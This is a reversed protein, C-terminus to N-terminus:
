RSQTCWPQEVTSPYICSPLFLLSFSRYLCIIRIPHIPFCFSILKKSGLLVTAEYSGPDTPLCVLSFASIFSVCSDLGFLLFFTGGAGPDTRLPEVQTNIYSSLCWLIGTWRAWLISSSVIVPLLFSSRPDTETHWERTVRGYMLIQEMMHTTKSSLARRPPLDGRSLPSPSFLPM